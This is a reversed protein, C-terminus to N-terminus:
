SKLAFIEFNFNFKSSWDWNLDMIYPIGIHSRCTSSIQYFSRKQIWERVIELRKVIESTERYVTHIKADKETETIETTDSIDRCRSANQINKTRHTTLWKLIFIQGLDPDGSGNTPEDILQEVEKDNEGNKGILCGM